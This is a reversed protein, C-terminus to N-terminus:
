LCVPQHSMIGGHGSQDVVFSVAPQLTFESSSICIGKSAMVPGPKAVKGDSQFVTRGM